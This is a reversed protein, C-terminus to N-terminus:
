GEKLTDMLATMKRVYDDVLTHDETLHALTVKTWTILTPLDEPVLESAPKDLHATIQRSMFRETAPGFYEQTIATVKQHLTPSDNTSKISMM